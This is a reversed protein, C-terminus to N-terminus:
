KPNKKHACNPSQFSIADEQPGFEEASLARLSLAHIKPMVESLTQYIHKQRDLRKMVKFFDSVILIKFHSERGKPGSHLDSENVINLVDPEYNLNLLEEIQKAVSLTDTM